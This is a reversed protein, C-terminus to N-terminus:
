KFNRPGNTSRMPEDTPLWCLGLPPFKEKMESLEEKTLKLDIKVDRNGYQNVTERVNKIEM